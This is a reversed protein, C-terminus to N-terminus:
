CLNSITGKLLKGNCQMIQKKVKTITKIALHLLSTNVNTVYVARLTMGGRVIHTKNSVVTKRTSKFLIESFLRNLPSLFMMRIQATEM